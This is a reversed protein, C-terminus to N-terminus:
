NEYFYNKFKIKLRNVVLIVEFLILSIAYLFISNYGFSAYLNQCKIRILTLCFLFKVEYLLQVYVTTIFLNIMKFKMIVKITKNM